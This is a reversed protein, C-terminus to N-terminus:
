GSMTWRRKGCIDTILRRLGSCRNHQVSFTWRMLSCNRRRARRCMMILVLNGIRSEFTDIYDGTAQASASTAMFLVPAFLSIIKYFFTM